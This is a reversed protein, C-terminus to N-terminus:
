SLHLKIGSWERTISKYLSDIEEEGFAERLDHVRQLVKDKDDQIHQKHYKVLNTLRVKRQEEWVDLYEHMRNECKKIYKYDILKFRLEFKLLLADYVMTAKEEDTKKDFWKKANDISWIKSSIHPYSKWVNEFLVDNKKNNKEEEKYIDNSIYVKDEQKKTTWKTTQQTTKTNNKSTLESSANSQKKLNESTKESPRWWWSSLQWASSKKKQNEMRKLLSKRIVKEMWKLDTPEIDEFMFEVFAILLRKSKTEKYFAYQDDYLTIQKRM